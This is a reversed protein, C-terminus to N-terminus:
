RPLMKGGFCQRWLREYGDKTLLHFYYTYRRMEGRVSVKDITVSYREDFNYTPMKWTIANPIGYGRYDARLQEVKVPSGKEDTIRVQVKSYDVADRGNGERNSRDAIVSFSCNDLGTIHAPYELFPYAIFERDDSRIDAQGAFQIKMASVTLDGADCRRYSADKLFPDLLWRRHGADGVGADVLWETVNAEPSVVVGPGIFKMYFLNSSQCGYDGERSYWRMEKRPFHTMVRNANMILCCKETFVDDDSRYELPCLGHLERLLNAMYLAKRWASAKLIGPFGKEPDPLREYLSGLWVTYRYTGYFYKLLELRKKMEPSPVGATKVATGGEEARLWGGPNEPPMAVICAAVILAAAGMVVSGGNM